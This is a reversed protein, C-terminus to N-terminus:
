QFVVEISSGGAFCAPCVVRLKVDAISGPELAMNVYVPLLKVLRWDKPPTHQYGGTLEEVAGCGDCTWTTATSSQRM